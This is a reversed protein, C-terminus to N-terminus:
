EPSDMGNLWAKLIALEESSLPGDPPMPRNKDVFLRQEMVKVQEFSRLWVERNLLQEKDRNLELHCAACRRQLLETIAEPVEAVATITAPPTVPDRFPIGASLRLIARNKDDVIWLSLDGAVTMGVPAGEPRLGTVAHWRPTLIVPQSIKSHGGAPAASNLTAKVDGAAPDRWYYGYEELLPRGSADVEYAVLRSGTDRHGHWSVILRGQLPPLGSDPYYLMGLPATHPPALSWPARYNDVDCGPEWEENHAQMNYCYPWGYFAGAEIINIEEYPENPDTLDMSNEAQLLTGSAHQALAMSNRLGTALMEYEPDWAHTTQDYRYLRLGARSAESCIRQKIEGACRDTSAGSNVILNGVMDFIFHTLPHLHKDHFPLDPIVVEPATAENGDLRFRIIRHAEGIYFANDPGSIIQHPLNLQQLLSRAAYRGSLRDRYLLWVSGQHPDWGGMDTVLFMETGPVQVIARPKKFRTAESYQAVLGLCLGDITEVKVRPYGDCDVGQDVMYPAASIEACCVTLIILILERM